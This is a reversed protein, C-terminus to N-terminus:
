CGNTGRNDFLCTVNGVRERSADANNMANTTVLRSFVPTM